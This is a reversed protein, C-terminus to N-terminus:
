LADDNSVTGVREGVRNVGQKIRSTYSGQKRKKRDGGV